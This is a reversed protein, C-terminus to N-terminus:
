ECRLVSRAYSDQICAPEISVGLPQAAGLERGLGCARDFRSMMCRVRRRGAITAPRAVRAKPWIVVTMGFRASGRGFAAAGGAYGNLVFLVFPWRM